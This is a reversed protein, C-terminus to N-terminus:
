HPLSFCDLVEFWWYCSFLSHDVQNLWNWSTSFGTLCAFMWLINSNMTKMYLTVQTSFIYLFDYSFETSIFGPSYLKHKCHTHTHPKMNSALGSTDYLLVTHLIFWTLQVWTVKSSFVSSSTHPHCLICLVSVLLCWTKLWRMCLSTVLVSTFAICSVFLCIEHRCDGWVCIAFLFSIICSVLLNWSQLWRMCLHHFSIFYHMIGVFKMDAIVEYVFLSLFHLSLMEAFSSYLSFAQVHMNTYIDMIDSAPAAVLIIKTAIFMHKNHCLQSLLISATVFSKNHLLITQWSLINVFTNGCCFRTQWLLLKTMVLMSKEHCFVNKAVAFHTQWVCNHKDHCMSTVVFSKDCVYALM